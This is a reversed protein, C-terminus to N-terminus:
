RENFNSDADLRIPFAESLWILNKRGPYGSVTRTLTQFADLTYNVREDLQVGAHEAIGQERNQMQEHAADAVTGGSVGGPGGSHGEM